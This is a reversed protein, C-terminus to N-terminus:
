IDYGIKNNILKVKMNEIEEQSKDACYTNWVLKGSEINKKHRKLYDATNAIVIAPNGVVVSNSPINKTVVTGAGVIVDNGITVGPLIIAGQGVFVNDGIDIRGVKVYGLQKKTSADHALLTAGTITCNDGVSILFAHGYDINSPYISTNRGVSMGHKKCKELEGGRYIINKIIRKIKLM